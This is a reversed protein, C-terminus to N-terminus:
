GHWRGSLRGRHLDQGDRKVVLDQYSLVILPPHPPVQGRAFLHTFAALATRGEREAGVASPCDDRSPCMQLSAIVLQFWQARLFLERLGRVYTIEQIATQHERAPPLAAQTGAIGPLSLHYPQGCGM